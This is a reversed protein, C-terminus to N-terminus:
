DSSKLYYHYDEWSKAKQLINWLEEETMEDPDKSYGGCFYGNIKSTAGHIRNRADKGAQDGDLLWYVQQNIKELYDIQMKSLSTGILAWTQISTIKNVYMADWIGEVIILKDTIPTGMGFFYGRSRWNGNYIPIDSKNYKVMIAITDNKISNVFYVINDDEDSYVNYKELLSVDYKIRGLAKESYGMGKYHNVLWESAPDYIIDTAVTEENDKKLKSWLELYEAYELGRNRALTILNGSAHCSFCNFLGNSLNISFSGITKDNHYPCLSFLEYGKRKIIKLGLKSTLTEVDNNLKM